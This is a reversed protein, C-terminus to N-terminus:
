VTVCAEANSDSELMSDFANWDILGWDIHEYTSTNNFDLECPLCDENEAMAISNETEDEVHSAKTENQEQILKTYQVPTLGTVKKFSRHLYGPSLKMDLALQQM